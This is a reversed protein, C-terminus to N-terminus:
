AHIVGARHELTKAVSSLARRIIQHLPPRNSLTHLQYSLELALSFSSAGTMPHLSRLAM